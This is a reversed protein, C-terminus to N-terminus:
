DVAILAAAVDREELVLVNYTRCAAGTDMWELAVGCGLLAQHLAIPPTSFQRGCGVILVRVSEGAQIIDGLSEISIEAQDFLPWDITRDPFVIVSGEYRQGSIKFGGNGYSTVLQKGASPRPTIDLGAM